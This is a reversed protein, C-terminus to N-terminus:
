RCSCAKLSHRSLPKLLQSYSCLSCVNLLWSWLTCKSTSPPPKRAADYLKEPKSVRKGCTNPEDSGDDCDRDQDCYWREPICRGSTCHFESDSCPQTALPLFSSLIWSCFVVTKEVTKVTQRYRKTPHHSSLFSSQPMRYRSKYLSEMPLSFYPPSLLCAIGRWNELIAKWIGSIWFYITKTLSVLSSYNQYM